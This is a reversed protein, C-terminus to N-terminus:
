REIEIDIAKQFTKQPKEENKQSFLVCKPILFSPSTLEGDLCIVIEIYARVGNDASRFLILSM